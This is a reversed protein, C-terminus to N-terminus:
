AKVSIEREKPFPYLPSPCSNITYNDAFLVGM